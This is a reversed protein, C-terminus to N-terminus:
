KRNKRTRRASQALPVFNKNGEIARLLRLQKEARKKTTCKAFAHKTTKNYVKYCSKNRVKRIAYPM